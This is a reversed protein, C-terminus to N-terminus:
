ARQIRYVNEAADYAFAGAEEGRKGVLVSSFFKRVSPNKTPGELFYTHANGVYAGGTFDIYKANLALLAHRFHGLRPKQEEGFKMRSANLAFDDENITVYLNRRFLIRDVWAAHSENNVDASALVVNDFILLKSSRNSESKMVYEFLYNGMSHLLLSIKVPCIDPLAKSLFLLQKEGDGPFREVAEQEVTKRSNAFLRDVYDYMRTILRDLANVSNRADQKDSLYSAVGRADQFINTGGGNSPWTFALCVVGYKRELEEATQVVADVPTNYGHVYLLLHRDSATTSKFQKLIHFAVYASGPYMGAEAVIGLEKVAASVTPDTEIESAKILDPIARYKRKAGTGTVEVARLDNPGAESPTDGLIVEGNKGETIKRNTVLFM